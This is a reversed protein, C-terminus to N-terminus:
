IVTVGEQDVVVGLDHAGGAVAIDVTVLGMRGGSWESQLVM